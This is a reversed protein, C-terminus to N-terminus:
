EEEDKYDNVAKATDEDEIPKLLRNMEEQLVEDETPKDDRKLKPRLYLYILFASLAIVGVIGLVILFIILGSNVELIM